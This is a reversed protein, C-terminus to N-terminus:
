LHTPLGFRAFLSTELFHHIHSIRGGSIELVQLSWPEHGGGVHDVRYQGFAPAGNAAVPLLRSGKCGIGFGPYWELLDQKGKLWMSMPPMSISADDQLLSVLLPIDYAEFAQVYRALL